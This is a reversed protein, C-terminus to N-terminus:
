IKKEFLWKRLFFCIIKNQTSSAFVLLLSLPHPASLFSNVKFLMLIKRLSVRWRVGLSGPLWVISVASSLPDM